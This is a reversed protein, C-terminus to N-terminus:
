AAGSKKRPTRKETLDAKAIRQMAAYMWTAHANSREVRKQIPAVEDPLFGTANVTEIYLPADSGWGQLNDSKPKGIYCGCEECLGDPTATAGVGCYKCTAM